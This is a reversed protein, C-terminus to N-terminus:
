AGEAVVESPDRDEVLGKFSPARLTRTHTWERFEVDAVLRPEVFRARRPLRQADFPPASRELPALREGLDELTRETFGTGVRGAYRLRQPEGRKEAEEPTVDWYGVLLAGLRGRRAGEGPMWGGILLEQRHVNKVKLWATSRRGPEYAADVRKAVVGELGQERTAALMAEGDGVHHAPTRWAAGNLDLEALLRRRETYPLATTPHGDLFLLDFVVYQVPTDRLRHRLAREDALHMRTQLRGFDPRGDEDFAVIEGDLVAEHAGLDRGIGRVEPYRSTIDAGRRAQLRVRGHDAFAIARVGDWKVEYAWRGDDRPLGALRALMPEVREPPAERGPEPPDMRHIMWQDGHTRFLAYRGSMREGHFTAIVEDARFKEAEYTGQDWIRMTGAGYQGAPIEGAFELYELPHDETHVALHNRGPDPPVGRPLAWSVAVGDHELRLDWHLRRADHEQVVFRPPADAPREPAAAREAGAPEPSASPDRKGRYSRLRDGM